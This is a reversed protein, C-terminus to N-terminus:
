FFLFAIRIFYCYEIEDEVVVVFFLLRGFTAPDFQKFEFKRHFM